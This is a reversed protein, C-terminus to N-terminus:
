GVWDDKRKPRPNKRARMELVHLVPIAVISLIIMVVYATRRTAHHQFKQVPIYSYGILMTFTILLAIFIGKGIRCALEM